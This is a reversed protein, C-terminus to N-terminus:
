QGQRSPCAIARHNVDGCVFCGRSPRPNNNNGSNNDNNSSSNNQGSNTGSNNNQSSNNGSGSNDSWCDIAKHNRKGCKFCNGKFTRQQQQQQPKANKRYNNGSWYVTEGMAYVTSKETRTKENDYAIAKTIAEELTKPAQLRVSQGAAGCGALFRELVKASLMDENYEEYGIGALSFLAMKYESYSEDATMDRFKFEEQAVVKEEEVVNEKLEMLLEAVEPFAVGSREFAREHPELVRNWATKVRSKGNLGAAIATHVRYRGEGTKLGAPLTRVWRKALTTWERMSQEKTSSPCPDMKMANPPIAHLGRGPGGHGGSGSGHGGARLASLATQLDDVEQKVEADAVREATRADTILKLEAKAADLATKQEVMLQQLKSVQDAVTTGSAM